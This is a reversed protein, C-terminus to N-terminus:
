EDRVDLWQLAKQKDVTILVNLNRNRAVTEDFNESDFIEENTIYASQFSPISNETCYQISTNALSNMLRYRDFTDMTASSESADILLKSIQSNRAEEFIALTITKAEDLSKRDKPKFEGTIKAYIYNRRNEIQSIM